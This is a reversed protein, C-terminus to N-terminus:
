LRKQKIHETHKLVYPLVFAVVYSISIALPSHAPTALALLIELQNSFYVILYVNILALAPIFAGAIIHQGQGLEDIYKILVHFVFGFALGVIFITFYLGIGQMLLLLPVLTISVFFNGIIALILAIWFASQELFRMSVTKSAEAHALIHRAKQVHESGWKHQLITSYDKM